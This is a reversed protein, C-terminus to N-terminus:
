TPNTTMCSALESYCYIHYALPLVMLIFVQGVSTSIPQVYGFFAGVWLCRHMSSDWPLVIISSYAASPLPASGSMPTLLFPTPM